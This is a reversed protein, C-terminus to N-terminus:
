VTEELNTLSNSPAIQVTDFFILHGKIGGGGASRSAQRCQKLAQKQMSIESFMFNDYNLSHIDMSRRIVELHSTINNKPPPYLFLKYDM